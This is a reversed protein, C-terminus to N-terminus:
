QGCRRIGEDEERYREEESTMQVEGKEYRGYRDDDDATDERRIESLGGEDTV